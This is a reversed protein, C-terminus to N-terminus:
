TQFAGVHPISGFVPDESDSGKFLVIAGGLLREMAQKDDSWVGEVEDAGGTRTIAIVKASTEASAALVTKSVSVDDVSLSSM